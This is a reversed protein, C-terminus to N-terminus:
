QQFRIAMFSVDFYLFAAILTPFHGAEYFKKAIM